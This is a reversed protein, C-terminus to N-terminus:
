QAAKRPEQGALPLELTFVVGEPPFERAVKAQPVSNEILYTGFGSGNPPSVAPGDAERWTMRLRQGSGEDLVNWDLSVSGSPTSLSGYKVANTALEHLLLGILERHVLDDLDASNWDNKILLDRANAIARLRAVTSQNTATGHAINGREHSLAHSVRKCNAAVVDILAQGSPQENCVVLEATAVYWDRM